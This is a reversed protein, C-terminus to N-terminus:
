LQLLKVETVIGLLTVLMPSTAKACQVPKVETVIGLLTVLMPVSAKSLTGFIIYEPLAVPEGIYIHWVSDRNKQNYFGTALLHGKESYVEHSCYRGDPTFNNKMRVAGSPYYYIFTGTEHDDKFTGEYIKRNNKDVKTWPGQRRGQKDIQNQAVALLPLMFIILVIIKLKM